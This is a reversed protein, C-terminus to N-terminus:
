QREGEKDPLSCGAEAAVGDCVLEERRTVIDALSGTLTVTLRRYLRVGAAPNGADARPARISNARPEEAARRM